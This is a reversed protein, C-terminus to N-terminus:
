IVQGIPLDLDPSTVIPAASAPHTVLFPVHGVGVNLLRL